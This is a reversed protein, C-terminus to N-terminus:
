TDNVRLSLWNLFRTSVVTRAHSINVELKQGRKLFMAHKPEKIDPYIVDIIFPM